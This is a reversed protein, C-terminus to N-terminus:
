STTVLRRSARPISPRMIFLHDTIIESAIALLQAVDGSLVLSAGRGKWTEDSALSKPM